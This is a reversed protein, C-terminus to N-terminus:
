AKEKAEQEKRMEVRRWAVTMEPEQWVANWRRLLDNFKATVTAQSHKVNALQGRLSDLQTKHREIVADKQATVREVAKEDLQSIREKIHVNETANCKQVHM